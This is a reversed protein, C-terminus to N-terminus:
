NQLKLFYNNICVLAISSSTFSSIVEIVKVKGERTKKHLCSYLSLFAAALIGGLGSLGIHCGFRFCLFFFLISSQYDGIM